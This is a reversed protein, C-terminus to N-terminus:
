VAIERLFERVRGDAGRRIPEGDGVLLVEYRLEAIRSLSVLLRDRDHIKEAPLLRLEGPPDGILSDGLLLVGSGEERYLGIEGATKGAMDHVQWGGALDEGPTLVRDVDGPVAGADIASMAVEAGSTERLAATARWHTHNTVVILTPQGDQRMRERAAETLDPPDVAVVGDPARWYFGNLDYKLRESYQNWSHIDPAVLDM